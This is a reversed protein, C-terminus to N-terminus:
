ESAFSILDLEENYEMVGNAQNPTAVIMLKSGKPM